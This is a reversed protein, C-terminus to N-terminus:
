LAIVENKSLSKLLRILCSTVSMPINVQISLFKLWCHFFSFMPAIFM